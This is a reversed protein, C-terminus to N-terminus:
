NNMGRRRRDRIGYLEQLGKRHDKRLESREEQGENVHVNMLVIMCERMQEKRGGLMAGNCGDDRIRAIWYKRHGM